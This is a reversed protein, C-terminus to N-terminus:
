LGTRPNCETEFSRECAPDHAVGSLQRVAFNHKLKSPSLDANEFRVRFRNREQSETTAGDCDQFRYLRDSSAKLWIATNVYGVTM